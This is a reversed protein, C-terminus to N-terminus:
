LDYDNENFKKRSSNHTLIKAIKGNKTKIIIATAEVDTLALPFEFHEINDKIFIVAGSKNIDSRNKRTEHFPFNFTCDDSLM